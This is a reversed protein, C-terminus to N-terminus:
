REVLAMRKNYWNMFLSILLSLTLYTMMTMFLIEIEQGTKNLTTGAFVQVLDTYAVVVALSSNKTLNLYQSALPPIIVRLAQPIVVLSLTQNSRLGLAGAAETQGKSVALVGARVIEAIFAGTYLTLSLWVAFMELPLVTGFGKTFGFRSRTPQEWQVPSLWSPEECNAAAVDYSRLPARDAHYRGLLIVDVDDVGSVQAALVPRGGEVAPDCQLIREVVADQPFVLGRGLRPDERVRDRAKFDEEYWSAATAATRYGAAQYGGVCMAALIVLSVWLTPFDKGTRDKRMRAWFSLAWWGLTFLLLIIWMAGGGPLIDAFPARLGSKDFFAVGGIDLAGDRPTPLLEGVLKFWLLMQLLLPINRFIEVYITAFGRLIINSSLRFVGMVFGLLTAAVIGLLSVAITNILGVFYVDINTSVGPQYGMVYTGATTLIEFDSQEFLFGFGSRKNVNSLNQITNDVIWWIFLLMSGLLLAQFIAGRIKPDYIFAMLGTAEDSQGQGQIRGNARGFKGDGTEM